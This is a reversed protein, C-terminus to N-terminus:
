HNAVYMYIKRFLQNKQLKSPECEQWSLVSEPMLNFCLQDNKLTNFPNIYFKNLTYYVIFLDNAM